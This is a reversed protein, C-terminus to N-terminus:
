ENICVFLTSAVRGSREAAGYSHKIDDTFTVATLGLGGVAAAALVRARKPKASQSSSNGYANRERAYGRVQNGIRSGQSQLLCQRCTWAGKTTARPVLRSAVAFNFGKM